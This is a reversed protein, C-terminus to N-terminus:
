NDWIFLCSYLSPVSHRKYKLSKILKKNIFMFHKYKWLVVIPLKRENKGHMLNLM